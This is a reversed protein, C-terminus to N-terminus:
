QIVTKNPVDEGSVGHTEGHKMHPKGGRLLGWLLPQCRGDVAAHGLHLGAMLARSAFIAPSLHTLSPDFSDVGQSNQLSMLTFFHPHPVFFALLPFLSSM